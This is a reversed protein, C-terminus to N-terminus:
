FQSVPEASVNIEKVVAKSSEISEQPVAEEVVVKEEVASNTNTDTVVVNAISLEEISIEQKHGENETVANEMKQEDIFSILGSLHKKDFQTFFYWSAYALLALVLLLFLKSKGRKEEEMPQVVTFGHDEKGQSYYALAEEKLQSLDADYERELISIFGLAKIKKIADFNAALLNELNDESIKTKQSIGKITNEELIENLQM